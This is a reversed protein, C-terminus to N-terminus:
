TIRVSLSTPRNYHDLDSGTSLHTMTVSECIAHFLAETVKKAAETNEWRYLSMEHHNMVEYISFGLM